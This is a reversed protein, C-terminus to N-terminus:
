EAAPLPLEVRLRFGGEPRTGAALSGGRSAIREALGALGSGGSPADEPPRPAGRGDDLLEARVTGDGREIRVECHRARSHRLVNTSGERVTWALADEVQRPLPGPNVEASWAIGAAELAIRAGALEAALTTRRYGSVAERVEALAQRAVREVDAVEAAAREPSGPLLRHALESKLTILSLSHGLLDHLDRAFRLREEGVALRAIEQRAARLAINTRILGMFSLMALGAALTPLLAGAIDGAPLGLAVGLGVALACSAAVAPALLRDPLSSVAAVSIYVVLLIWNEGFALSTVVVLVTMAGLAPVAIQYKRAPWVDSALALEYAIVFVVVAAIGLRLETASPHQRVLSSIPAALYTLWVSSFVMRGVMPHRRALMPRWEGAKWVEALTPTAEDAVREGSTAGEAAREGPEWRAQADL